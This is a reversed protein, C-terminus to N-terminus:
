VLSYKLAIFHDGDVTEDCTGCELVNVQSFNVACLDVYWNLYLALITNLDKQCYM